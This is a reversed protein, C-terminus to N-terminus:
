FRSFDTSSKGSAESRNDYDPLSRARFRHFVVRPLPQEAALSLVLESAQAPEALPAAEGTDIRPQWSSFYLRQGASIGSAGDAALTIRAGKNFISTDLLKVAAEQCTWCQTFALAQRATPLAAVQVAEDPHLFAEPRQWPQRPREVTEVDMGIAFPAIAVAVAHVSHSISFFPRSEGPLYPKGNNSYQLQISGPAMGELRAMATKLMVRGLLFRRAAATHKFNSYRQREQKDLLELSENFNADLPCLWVEPM